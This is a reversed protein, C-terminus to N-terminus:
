TKGEGCKDTSTIGQLSPQEWGQGKGVIGKM